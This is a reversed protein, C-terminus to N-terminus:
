KRRGGKKAKCGCDPAKGGKPKTPMPKMGYTPKRITM